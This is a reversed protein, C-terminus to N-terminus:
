PLSASHMRRRRSRRRRRRWRKRMGSGPSSKRNWERGSL